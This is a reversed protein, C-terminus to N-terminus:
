LLTNLLLQCNRSRDHRATVAGLAGISQGAVLTPTKVYEAMANCLDDASKPQVLTGNVGDTVSEAIAGVDTSIVPLGLAMAELLSNPFGEPHYTPLVFVDCSVLLDRVARASLNGTFEVGKIGRDAVLQRCYELDPGDGALVCECHGNLDNSALAHIIEVVGKERVIRGTFVFRVPRGSPESKPSEAVEFGPPLWNPIVVVKEPPFGMAVLREKWAMGQVFFVSYPQLLWRVLREALSGRELSLL